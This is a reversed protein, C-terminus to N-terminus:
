DADRRVLLVTAIALAALVYGWFIAAHLANPLGAAVVEPRDLDTTIDLTRSGTDFPVLRVIGPPAFSVIIGEIVLWWVLLASIAGASHRVVMGISLGLLAAGATYLLGWGVTSPVASTAGVAAGGALAGVFGAVMGTAGLVLGFGTAVLSKAVAVPWRSPHATLAAPLTGHQVETTFLVIGAIAALVATLVTPFIFAESATLTGDTSRAAAVGSILLGIVASTCLLVKPSRVTALKIRESRLLAALEPRLDPRRAGNPGLETAPPRLATTM